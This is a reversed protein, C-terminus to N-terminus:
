WYPAPVHIIGDGWFGNEWTKFRRADYLDADKPGKQWHVEHVDGEVIVATHYGGVVNIFGFPIKELKTLKTTLETTRNALAIDAGNLPGAGPVGRPFTPYRAPDWHYYKKTPFYDVILDEVILKKYRGKRGRRGQAHQYTYAHHNRRWATKNWDLDRPHSTDPSIYLGTWNWKELGKALTIGMGQKMYGKISNWDNAAGTKEHGIKAAELLYVICNSGKLGYKTVDSNFAAVNPYKSDSAASYQTGYHTGVGRDAVLQKHDKLMM